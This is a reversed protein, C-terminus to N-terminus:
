QLQKIIKDIEEKEKPNHVKNKHLNSAKLPTGTKTYFLKSRELTTPNLNTFFPKLKTVLYSFQTTECQIHIEYNIKTFDNSILLEYFQKITAHNEDILDLRFQITKLALFLSETNHNKYKFANKQSLTKREKKLQITTELKKAPIIELETIDENFYHKYIEETSLIEENGFKAFRDQLETYLWIMNVKLYQIVFTNDNTINNKTFSHKDIYNNINILNQHYEAYISNYVFTNEEPVANNPFDKILVNFKENAAIDILNKYYKNKEGLARKFVIEFNPKAKYQLNQKNNLNLSRYEQETRLDKHLGKTISILSSFIHQIM